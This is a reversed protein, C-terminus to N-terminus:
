VQQSKLLFSCPYISGKSWMYHAENIMPIVLCYYVARKTLNNISVLCKPTFFCHYLAETTASTWHLKSIWPLIELFNGVSIWISPGPKLKQALSSPSCLSSFILKRFQFGWWFTGSRMQDSNLPYELYFDKWLVKCQCFLLFHNEVCKSVLALKAELWAICISIGPIWDELRECLFVTRLHACTACQIWFPWRFLSSQGPYWGQDTETLWPNTGPSYVAFVWLCVSLLM